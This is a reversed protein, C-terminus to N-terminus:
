LKSTLSYQLKLPISTQTTFRSKIWDTSNSDQISLNNPYDLVKFHGSPSDLLKLFDVAVTRSTKVEQSNSTSSISSWYFVCSLELIWTEDTRYNSCEINLWDFPKNHTRVNEFEEFIKNIFIKDSTHKSNIFQVEPSSVIYDTQIKKPILIILSKLINNEVDQYVKNQEELIKPLSLCKSSNDYWEVESWIYDCIWPISHIFESDLSLVLVNIYFATSLLLSIWFIVGTVSKSFELPNFPKKINNNWTEELFSLNGLDFDQFIDWNNKNVSEWIISDGFVWDKTKNNDEALLSEIQTNENNDVNSIKDKKKFFSLLWKKEKLKIDQNQSLDIDLFDLSDNNNIVIENSIQNTNNQNDLTTNENDEPKSEINFINEEM